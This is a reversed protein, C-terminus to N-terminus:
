SGDTKVKMFRFIEQQQCRNKQEKKQFSSDAERMHWPIILHYRRLLSIYADTPLTLNGNVADGEMSRLFTITEEHRAYDEMM